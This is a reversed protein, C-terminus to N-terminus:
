SSQPSYSNEDICSSHWTLLILPKPTIHM